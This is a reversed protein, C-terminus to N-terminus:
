AFNLLDFLWKDVFLDVKVFNFLLYVVWYCCEVITIPFVMFWYCTSYNVFFSFNPLSSFLPKTACLSLSVQSLVSILSILKRRHVTTPLHPPRHNRSPPNQTRHPRFKPRIRLWNQPYRYLCLYLVVNHLSSNCSMSIYKIKKVFV